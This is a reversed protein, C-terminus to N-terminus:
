RELAAPQVGPFGSDADVESLLYCHKFQENAARQNQAIRRDREALFGKPVWNLAVPGLRGSARKSAYEVNLAQLQADFACAIGEGSEPDAADLELHLRYYPPRSWCPALVFQRAAAVAGLAAFALVAQQETLKEGALSSAHVGKHLFEIIPTEGVHGTVRVRDGIDYRYLGASTTLLVFYEAGCALEHSRLVTPQGSGYEDAPVFEYFNDPVNLLGAPTGDEVPISIRGESAILGVDRVPTSGFYEPFDRLYLGMTGGMWNALFGLRWVDRPLLRGTRAAIDALRRAAPPDPALRACLAAHLAGPMEGPPNLTGEGVDRILRKAHDDMSRALRLQTAPSATILFAPDCTAAFRVVCYYRADADPVYAVERPVVYYRRVLRKQTAAMLGTIAGCPIGASTHEEDMPSAVQVIPRLFCGPHDAIVKVGFANWGRRYEELFPSTVPIYKPQDTTGSTKAFMHVTQGPGFMAALDGRKVREIYDAFDEYRLIPVQRAFDAGSRIKSFGFARGFDSAANRRVKELLVREQVRRSDAVARMFRGLTRQAHGRALLLMVRDAVPRPNRFSSDIVRAPM